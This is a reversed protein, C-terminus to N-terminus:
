ESNNSDSEANGDFYTLAKRWAQRGIMRGAERGDLDGDEFHIGGYRRSIGAQDAAERFTRWSLTIDEHPTLGPEVSSSGAKVIVSNGFYDSDTFLTLVEAAAASFTSHGSYYEPFPPTVITLPQYPQWDKGDITKTGQFPGGWARIKEGAKLFHVATVPRVSDYFRKVSWCAISADLLANTMAVFMKTDRDIDHHDRNSVFEAFLVWHGPPLESHPGDKWYEAIAKQRDTLNASIEIMQEVQKNYDHGPFFDPGRGPFEFPSTLAFPIVNQWFPAIYRQIVFGGMGNSVRLPQWHNPDNIQDPTNVPVYHQYTATDYDTYPGSGSISPDTSVLDGLQNAGDHERFAIVAAAAVNGIGAPITTDTSNDSPDYGLSAMEADALAKDTPFLNVYSRYAAFSLAKAKNEDTDEGTPRRPIGNAQTPVADRDYATWADFMATNVIALMRAVIPPGPKTDRIGQLTVNNWQVNVTDAHARSEMGGLAVVLLLGTLATGISRM